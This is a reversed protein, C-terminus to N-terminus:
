QNHSRSSIGVRPKRLAINADPQRRASQQCNAKGVVLFPKITTSKGAGNEGILGMICGEPLVLDINKLEFDGYNKSLGKIELANM